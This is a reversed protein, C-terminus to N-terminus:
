LQKQCISDEMRIIYKSNNQQEKEKLSCKYSGDKDTFTIYYKKDRSYHTIQVFGNDVIILDEKENEQTDQVEHLQAPLGSLAVKGNPTKLTVTAPVYSIPVFEVKIGANLPTTITKEYENLVINIPLTNVDVSIKQTLYSQVNPILFYGKKDTRGIFSGNLLIGVNPINGVSVLVFSLNSYRGFNVGDSSLILSGQTSGVVSYNNQDQFVTQLTNNFNKFNYFGGGMISTPSQNNSISDTSSITGGYNYGYTNTPDNYQYQSSAINTSVNNQRTNQISNQLSAADKFIYNLNALLSLGSGSSPQLTYMATANFNFSRSIQWLFTSNYTSSDGYEVQNQENAGFSVSSSQSIPVNVFVTQQIPYDQGTTTIIGLQQFTPTTLTLQYGYSIKSSDTVQRNFGLGLLGGVGWDKSSSVATTLSAVFQNLILTNHTIGIDYLTGPQAESHVDITYQDTVGYLQDTSFFTQSEQYGLNLGGPNTNPLGSDYRYQYVGKKLINNSAYFPITVEQYVAGTNNQLLMTITGNGNIVPINSLSFPGAPLDTKALPMQNNLLLQATSPVTAQGQIIPTASFVTFPQLNLNSGYHIGGYSLSNGWTGAYSSNDGIIVSTMKNPFDTQWYTQNRVFSNQLSYGGSNNLTGAATSFQNQFSLSPNTQSIGQSSYQNLFLQYITTDAKLPTDAIVIGNNSTLSVEEFPIWQPNVTLTVLSSSDNFNFNANLSNNEVCNYKQKDRMYYTFVAASSLLTNIDAAKLCLYKNNLYALFSGNHENGNINLTIIQKSISTSEISLMSSNQANTNIPLQDFLIPSAGMGDVKSSNSTIESSNAIGFYSVFFIIFLLKVLSM